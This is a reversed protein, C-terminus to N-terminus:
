FFKEMTTVRIGAYDEEPRVTQFGLRRYFNVAYPAAKLSIYREGAEDKLYSFLKKMLARGIGMKHYAEDVFLLSLHNGNRVSAMGIVKRGEMAVIMQYRGEVFANYLRGDTIFDFFSQIGEESYEKGEFKLFTRWVMDMATDWDGERAWRIEYSLQRNRM